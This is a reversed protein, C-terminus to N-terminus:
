GFLGTAFLEVGPGIKKGKSDDEVFRSSSGLREGPISGRDNSVFVAWEPRKKEISRLRKGVTPKTLPLSETESRVSSLSRRRERNRTRSM